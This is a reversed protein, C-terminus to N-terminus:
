YVQFESYGWSWAMVGLTLVRVVPGIAPDDNPTLKRTPSSRTM